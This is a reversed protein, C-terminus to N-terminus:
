GSQLPTNYDKQCKEEATTSHCGWQWRFERGFATVPSFPNGSNTHPIRPDASSAAPASTQRGRSRAESTPAPSRPSTLSRRSFVVARDGTPTAFPRPATPVVLIAAPTRRAAAINAVPQVRDAVAPPM